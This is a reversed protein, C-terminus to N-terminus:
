SILSLIVFVDFMVYYNVRMASADAANCVDFALIESCPGSLLDLNPLKILADMNDGISM